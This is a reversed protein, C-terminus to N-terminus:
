FEPLIIKGLEDNELWMDQYESEHAWVDWM